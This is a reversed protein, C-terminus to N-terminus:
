AEVASPVCAGHAQTLKEIELTDFQLERLIEHTHEGLLPPLRYLTTDASSMEIPNKAFRLNGESPHKHIEWFNVSKLHPDDILDEIDNVVSFPIDSDNLLSLWEANSKIGIQHEIEDWVARFNKQRSSFTNFREDQMKEPCGALQFFREWHVNSYPLVSLYGDKTKYPRRAATTVPEYGMKAIPPSFAHGWQHEFMNFASITEFMPVQLEQGQGFRFRHLVACVIGYAAHVGSIKDAIITPIYRPVGAIVKQMMALGSAAQIIDDYAPRGAYLGNESYGSVHCFIVDPNLQKCHEYNIGLSNAATSRMSHLVVDCQALLKQLVHQGEAKKLDVVISRKNRNSSLFFAGMKPSQRPGISRTLDGEPPELKIVDAGMDALYQSALPGFIMTAIELVKIGELPRHM